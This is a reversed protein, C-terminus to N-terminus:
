ALLQQRVVPDSDNRLGHNFVVGNKNTEGAASFPEPPPWVLSHRGDDRDPSTVTFTLRRLLDCLSAGLERFRRSVTKVANITPMRRINWAPSGIAFKVVGAYGQSM